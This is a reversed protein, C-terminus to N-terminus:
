ERNPFVQHGFAYLKKSEENFVAVTTGTLTQNDPKTWHGNPGAPRTALSRWRLTELDFHFILESTNRQLGIRVGGYLYISKNHVFAYHDRLQPGGSMSGTTNDSWLVQFFM